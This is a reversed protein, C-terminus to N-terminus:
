RNTSTNYYELCENKVDKTTIKECIQKDKPTLKIGRLFFSSVVSYYCDDKDKTINIKDECISIDGVMQNFYIYCSNRSSEDLVNDCIKENKTNLAVYGYCMGQFPGSLKCISADNVVPAVDLYCSERSYSSDSVSECITPDKLGIATQTYCQDQLSRESPGDLLAGGRIKGCVSSDKNTIAILGIKEAGNSDGIIYHSRFYVCYGFFCILAVILWFIKNKM